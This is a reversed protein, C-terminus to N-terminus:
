SQLYELRLELHSVISTMPALRTGVYYIDKLNESRDLGLYTIEEVSNLFVINELELNLPFVNSGVKKVTNPIVVSKLEYCKSFLGRISEPIVAETITTDKVGTITGTAEDFKYIYEAIEAFATATFTPILTLIM